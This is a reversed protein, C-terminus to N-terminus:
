ITRKRIFFWGGILFTCSLIFTLGFGYLLSDNFLLVQFADAVQARYTPISVGIPIAAILIAWIAWNMFHGLGSFLLNLLSIVLMYAGFQYIFMGAMGFQDWHFIELINFTTLDDMLFTNELKFWLINFLAYGAIWVAYIALLNIYYEKRTAGLNIIRKFFSIPLVIAMIILFPTLMNGISVFTDEQEIIQSVLSAAIIVILFLLYIRLQLFSAKM